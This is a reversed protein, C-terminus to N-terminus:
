FWKIIRKLSQNLKNDPIKIFNLAYTAINQLNPSLTKDNLIKDFSFDNIILQKHNIKTNLWKYNQLAEKIQPYPSGLLIFERPANLCEQPLCRQSMLNKVSLEVGSLFFHYSQALTKDIKELMQKSLNKERYQKDISTLTESKPPAGFLNAIEKRISDAGWSFDLVDNFIYPRSIGVETKNDSINIFLAEKKLCHFLNLSLAANKEIWLIKGSDIKFKKITENFFNIISENTFTNLIVFGFTRGKFGLPNYILSDNVLSKIILANAIKLSLEKTKLKFSINQRNNEFIRRELKYIANQIEADDITKEFNDRILSLRSVITKAQSNEFGAFILEPALKKRHSFKKLFNELGFYGPSINEFYTELLKPAAEKDGASMITAEFFDPAINAVWYIKYRNQNNFLHFKM